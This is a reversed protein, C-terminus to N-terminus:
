QKLWGSVYVDVCGTWRTDLGGKPYVGNCYTEAVANARNGEGGKAAADNNDQIQKAAILLERALDRFCNKKAKAGDKWKMQQCAIFETSDEAFGPSVTILALGFLCLILVCSTIKFKHLM